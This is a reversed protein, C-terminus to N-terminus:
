WGLSMVAWWGWGGAWEGLVEKILRVRVLLLKQRRYLDRQRELWRSAEVWDPHLGQLDSLDPPVEGSGHVEQLPLAPGRCAERSLGLSTGAGQQLRSALM